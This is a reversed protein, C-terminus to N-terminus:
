PGQTASVLRLRIRQSSWVAQESLVDNHHHLYREVADLLHEDPDSQNGAALLLNRRLHDADRQPIYFRGFRDLLEEDALILSELLGSADLGVGREDGAGKRLGRSGVPCSTLCDDCGYLRTGAAERYPLPFPGAKQLLWSLCRRADLHGAGDLAGTPCAVVCRECSGCGRADVMVPLPLEADTLISGILLWPGSRTTMVMTNKGVWGLGARRAVARDVVRNSDVVITARFRRRRLVEAVVDLKRRLTAYHDLRAYQAVQAGEGGDHFRVDSRYDYTGVVMTRAFPFSLRPSTATVPSRFTFGMTSSRGSGIARGIAVLDFPSANVDCFSLGSLGTAEAVERLTRALDVGDDGM